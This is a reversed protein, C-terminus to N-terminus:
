FWSFILKFYKVEMYIFFSIFLPMIIENWHKIELYLFSFYLTLMTENRQKTEIYIFLFICLGILEM